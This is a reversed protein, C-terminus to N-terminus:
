MVENSSRFLRQRAFYEVINRSRQEMPCNNQRYIYQLAIQSMGQIVIIWANFVNAVEFNVISVIWLHTTPLSSLQIGGLTESM